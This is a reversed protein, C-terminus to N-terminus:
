STPEWSTVYRREHELRSIGATWDTCGTPPCHTALENAQQETTRPAWRDGKEDVPVWHDEVTLGLEAVLVSAVHAAQAEHPMLDDDAEPNFGCYCQGWAPHNCDIRRQHARLVADMREEIGSM